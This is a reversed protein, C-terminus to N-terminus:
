LNDIFKKIFPHWNEPTFGWSPHYISMVKVKDGNQLTYAGCRENEGEIVIKELEEWVSGGPMNTWLRRSWAIIGQPKYQELIEFFAKDSNRFDVSKPSKRNKNLAKQVYNYFMVSNWIEYRLSKDTYGGYLAREFKTFTAKYRGTEDYDNLIENISKANTRCNNEDAKGIGCDECNSCYLSEGLILLKKGFVGGTEYDKGVWPEFFASNEM